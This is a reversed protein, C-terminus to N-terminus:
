AVLSDFYLGGCFNFDTVFNTLTVMDSTVNSSFSWNCLLLELGTYASANTEMIQPPKWLIFRALKDMPYTGFNLARLMASEKGSKMSM